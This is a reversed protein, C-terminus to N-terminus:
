RRECQVVHPTKEAVRQLLREVARPLNDAPSRAGKVGDDDAAARKAADDGLMQENCVAGAAAANQHEFGPREHQGFVHLVHRIDAARRVHPHWPDVM